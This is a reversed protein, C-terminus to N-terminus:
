SIIKVKDLSERLKQLEDVIPDRPFVTSKYIRLDIISTESTRRHGYEYSATIKFFLPCINEDNGDWLLSPGTGLAFLLKTNPPFCDIPQIFAQTNALNRDESREKCLYFNKDITLKLNLAATKGINEINLYVFYSSAQVYTSVLVYPRLAADQQDQMATAMAKNARLIKYTVFTYIGTVVVLCLTLVDTMNARGISNVIENM